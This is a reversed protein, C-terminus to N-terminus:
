TWVCPWAQANLMATQLGSNDWEEQLCPPAAAEIADIIEAITM